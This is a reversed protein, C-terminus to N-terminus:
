HNNHHPSVLTLPRFHDLFAANTDSILPPPPLLTTTVKSTSTTSSTSPTMMSLSTPPDFHRGFMDVPLPSVISVMSNFSLDLGSLLDNVGPVGNMTQPVASWFQIFQEPFDNMLMKQHHHDEEEFATTTTTTMAALQDTQTVVINDDEIVLNLSPATVTTTM